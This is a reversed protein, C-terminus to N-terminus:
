AALSPATCTWLPLYTTTTITIIPHITPDDLVDHHANILTLIRTGAANLSHSTFHPRTLDLVPPRSHPIPILLILTLLRSPRVNSQTAWVFLMFSPALTLGASDLRWGCGRTLEEEPM